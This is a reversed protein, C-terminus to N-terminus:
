LVCESYTVTKNMVVNTARVRWVTVNYTRHKDQKRQSIYTYISSPTRESQWSSSFRQPFQTSRPGTQLQETKNRLSDENM